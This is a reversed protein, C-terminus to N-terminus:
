WHLNYRFMKVHSATREIITRTLPAPPKAALAAARVRVTNQAESAWGCGRM